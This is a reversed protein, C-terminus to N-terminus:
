AGGGSLRLIQMELCSEPLAAAAQTHVASSIIHNNDQGVVEHFARCKLCFTVISLM